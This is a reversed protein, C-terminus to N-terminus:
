KKLKSRLCNDYIDLAIEKNSPANPHGDLPVRLLKYDRGQFLEFQDRFETGFETSWQEVAEHIKKFPYNEDLPSSFDPVLVVILPVGNSMCLESIQRLADKSEKWKLSDKAFGDLYQSSHEYLQPTLTGKEINLGRETQRLISYWLWSNRERFKVKPASPVNLQPEADNVVYCLVVLKPNWHEWHRKLFHLEQVTNYGPMGGNIVQYDPFDRAVTQRLVAPYCEEDHVAWGFTYSDGLCVITKKGKDPVPGRVGEKNIHMWWSPPLTSRVRNHRKVGPKLTYVLPGQEILYIDNDLKKLRKLYRANASVRVAFEGVLLGFVASISVVIIQKWYKKFFGRM